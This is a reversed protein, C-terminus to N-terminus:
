VSAGCQELVTEAHPSFSFVALVKVRPETLVCALPMASLRTVLGEDVPSHRSAGIHGLGHAGSLAWPPGCGSSAAPTQREELLESVSCM